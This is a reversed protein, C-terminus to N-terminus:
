SLFSSSADPLCQCPVATPISEQTLAIVFRTLQGINVNCYLDKFAYKLYETAQLIYGAITATISIKKVIRPSSKVQGAELNVTLDDAM